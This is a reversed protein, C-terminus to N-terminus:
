GGKAVITPMIRTIVVEVRRNAERGEQTENSAIPKRDGRGIAAVRVADIGNRILYARIAQARDRSLKDLSAQKGNSDTHGEIRVYINPYKNLVDRLRELQVTSEPKIEALSQKFFIPDLTITGGQEQPDLLIEVEYANKHTQSRINLREVHGIFGKKEATISFDNLSKVRFEFRGGITGITTDRGIIGRPSIEVVADMPEGTRAHKVVGVVLIDLPKPEQIQVRYIDSSGDRNSTLYLYGTAENFYPQSDDRESSIPPKFRRALTWNHWSTDLRRCFYIDNGGRGWRNSSFYLTKKDESLSPTSERFNTNVGEGLNMPKSWHISDLRRSMYLDTEGFGGPQEYSIIMIEGDESVTVGVGDGGARYGEILLPEPWTFSGDAKRRTHSFGKYLGGKHPFQNIVVFHGAEPMVAGLANPLANNLPTDPHSIRVFEGTRDFEALWIDQNFKSRWVEGSPPGGLQTYVRRLLQEYRYEDLSDAADTGDYFLNRNFDPSGTRTFYLRQGDRSVVPSIEDYEESNIPAPLKEVVLDMIPAQGFVISPLMLGTILLALIAPISYIRLTM